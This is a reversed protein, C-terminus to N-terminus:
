FNLLSKCNDDSEDKVKKAQGWGFVRGTRNIWTKINIKLTLENVIRKQTFNEKM